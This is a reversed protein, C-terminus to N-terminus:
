EAEDDKEDSDCDGCEDNDGEICEEKDEEEPEGEKKPPAVFFPIKGRIWDNLVIKAVTPM